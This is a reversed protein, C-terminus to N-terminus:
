LAGYTHKGTATARTVGHAMHKHKGWQSAGQGQGGLVVCNSFYTIIASGTTDSSYVMGDNIVAPHLM